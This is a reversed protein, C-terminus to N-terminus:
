SIENDDGINKMRRLNKEAVLVSFGLRLFETKDLEFRFQPAQIHIQEDQGPSPPHNLEIEIETNLLRGRSLTRIKEGM